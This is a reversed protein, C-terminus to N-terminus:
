LAAIVSQVAVDLVQASLLSATWYWGPWVGLNAPLLLENALKRDWWVLVAAFAVLGLRTAWPPHLVLAIIEAPSLIGRLFAAVAMFSIVYAIRVLLWIAVSRRIVTRLYPPYPLRISAATLHRSLPIPERLFIRIRAPAVRARPPRTM